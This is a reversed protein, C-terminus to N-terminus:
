DYNHTIVTRLKHKHSFRIVHKLDIDFVAAAALDRKIYCRFFYPAYKIINSSLSTIIKSKEEYFGINHTSM